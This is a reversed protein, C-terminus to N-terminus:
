EIVSSEEISDLIMRIFLRVRESLFTEHEYKHLATVLSTMDIVDSPMVNQNIYFMLINYIGIVLMNVLTQRPDKSLTEVLLQGIGPIKSIVLQLYLDDKNFVLNVLLYQLEKELAPPNDVSKMTEYIMQPIQTNTFLPYALSVDSTGIMNSISWYVVQQIRENQLNTIIVKQLVEYIGCNILIFSVRDSKTSLAGIFKMAPLVIIEYKSQVLEIVKNILEKSLVLEEYSTTEALYSIGWLSYKVTEVNTSNLSSVLFMFIERIIELNYLVRTIFINSFLWCVITQNNVPNTKYYELAYHVIGANLFYEALLTGESSVNSVCWLLARAIEGGKSFYFSFYDGIKATVLDKSYEHHNSQTYSALFLVVYHAYENNSNFPSNLLTACWQYKMILNNYVFCKSSFFTQLLKLSSIDGHIAKQTTEIMTEISPLEEENCSMLNISELRVANLADERRKSRLVALVEASMECRKKLTPQEGRNNSM